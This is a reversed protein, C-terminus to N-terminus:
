SMTSSSYAANSDVTADEGSTLVGGSSSWYTLGCAFSLFRSIAEAWSHM